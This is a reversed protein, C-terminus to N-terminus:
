TLKSQSTWSHATDDSPLPNASNRSYTPKHRKGVKPRKGGNVRSINVKEKSSMFSLDRPVMWYTGLGKSKVSIERVSLDSLEVSINNPKTIRGLVPGVSNHIESIACEWGEREEREALDPPPCTAPAHYKERHGQELRAQGLNWATSLGPSPFSTAFETPPVKFEPNQEWNM